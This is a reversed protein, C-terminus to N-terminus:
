PISNRKDMSKTKSRVKETKLSFAPFNNKEAIQNIMSGLIAMREPCVVFSRLEESIWAGACRVCIEIFGISTNSDDYFILLHRPEYCGAIMLEECLQSQYLTYQWDACQVSDLQVWGVISDTPINLLGATFRDDPNNKVSNKWSMRNSTYFVLEVRKAVKFPDLGSSDRKEIIPGTRVNKGKYLTVKDQAVLNLFSLLLYLLITYRM